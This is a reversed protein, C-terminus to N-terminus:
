TLGGVSKYFIYDNTEENWVPHLRNYTETCGHWTDAPIVHTFFIKQDIGPITYVSRVLRLLQARLIGRDHEVEKRYWGESALLSDALPLPNDPPHLPRRRLRCYHECFDVQGMPEEPLGSLIFGPVILLPVDNILVLPYLPFFEYPPNEIDIMRGMRVPPFLVGSEIPEFLLRLLFFVRTFGEVLDMKKVASDVYDRLGAIVQEQEERYLVNVARIYTGPDFTYGEWPSCNQLIEKVDVM